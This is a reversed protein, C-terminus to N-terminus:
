TGDGSNEGRVVTQGVYALVGFTEPHETCTANYAAVKERLATMEARTRALFGLVEREHPHGDWLTFGYTSGGVSDTAEARAGGARLKTCMATVVAQYHEFLAAEWGAREGLPIVCEASHLVGAATRSVRGDTVLREIALDVPGRDVSLTAAVEDATTTGGRQIVVWVLSAFGEGDDDRLAPRDEPGAARYSTQTGRGTAFVLESEVLDVLVGRVTAEDDRAFRALVEGQTVTGNKEIHDLVAEWLSRGRFTASESLRQVKSHYSRLALGFMDAIVKNGLGQRKLERTLDLFVQNAMHALPARVGAATALQAVLVMTQRVIADILVNVNM